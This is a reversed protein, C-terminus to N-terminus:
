KLEVGDKEYIERFVNNCCMEDSDFVTAVGIPTVEIRHIHPYLPDDKHGCDYCYRNAILEAASLVIKQLNGMEDDYIERETVEHFRGFKRGWSWFIRVQSRARPKDPGTSDM